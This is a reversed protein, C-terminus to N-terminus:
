TFTLLKLGDCLFIFEESRLNGTTREIITKKGIIKIIIRKSIGIIKKEIMKVNKTLLDSANIRM